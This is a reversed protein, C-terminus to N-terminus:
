NFQDVVKKYIDKEYQVLNASDLDYFIITSINKNSNRNIEQAMELLDNTSVQEIKVADGKAFYYGAKFCPQVAEFWHKRVERFNSFVLPYEM